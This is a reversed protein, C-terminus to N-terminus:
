IRSLWRKHGGIGLCKNTKLGVGSFTSAQLRPSTSKDYRAEVKNWGFDDERESGFGFTKPTTIWAEGYHTKEKASTCPGQHILLREAAPLRNACLFLNLNRSRLSSVVPALLSTIGKAVDLEVSVHRRCREHQLVSHVGGAVTHGCSGGDGCSNLLGHLCQVV